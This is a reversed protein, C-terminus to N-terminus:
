QEEIPVLVVLRHVSCYMIKDKKGTYNNGAKSTKYRLRVIRVIGDHGAKAESVQALKWVGRIANQDQVLVIDGVKVNRKSSHWKSQIMLTPFYDRQWKRWFGNVLEAM